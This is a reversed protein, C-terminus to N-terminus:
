LVDFGWGMNKWGNYLGDQPQENIQGDFLKIAAPSLLRYVDETTKFKEPHDLYPSIKFLSFITENSLGYYEISKVGQLGPFLAYITNQIDPQLKSIFDLWSTLLRKATKEDIGNKPSYPWSMAFKNWYTPDVSPPYAGIGITAGRIGYSSPYIQGHIKDPTLAFGQKNGSHNAALVIATFAIGAILIIIGYRAPFSSM